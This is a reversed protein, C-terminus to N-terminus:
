RYRGPEVTKKTNLVQEFDRFRSHSLSLPKSLIVFHTKCAVSPTVGYITHCYESPLEQRTQLRGGTSIDSLVPDRQIDSRPPTQPPPYICYSTTSYTTRLSIGSATCQSLYGSKHMCRIDIRSIFNAASLKINTDYTIASM